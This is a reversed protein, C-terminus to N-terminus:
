PPVPLRVTVVTGTPANSTLHIHGDHLNIIARARSLGLGSGATGHHRVNSGRFFRDFVRAREDTPTGIGTDAVQFQIATEDITATVRVAGGLPTYLVANALIDDIVQRLRDPDATLRITKPLETHLRIGNAAIRPRASNVAATILDCLDIKKRRMPLHGAELGALDLLANVTNQLSGANRAITEIMEQQDVTLADLEDHLMGAHATISALPTRLEHGVLAIFDDQTRSLEHGLREARRLAIWIGIQAAVGDLLVTLLEQHSQSSGAYCTLVGLLTDGDCVPTAMVTRIGHDAAAEVRNREFPTVLDTYVTIDDVWIPRGTQWVRGTIGAGKIPTHGFLDDPEGPWNSWHGVADLNGTQEDVLFLEAAPWDLATAVAELLRPAAEGGTRSSRLSREVAHHCTRFRSALSHASGDDPDASARSRVGGIDAVALLSTVDEATWRHPRRDMALLAGIVDDRDDRVPVGLVARVALQNGFGPWTDDDSRVVRADTIVQSYLPDALPLRGPTVFGFHGFTEVAEDRTMLLAAMPARVLRAALRALADGPMSGNGASSEDM